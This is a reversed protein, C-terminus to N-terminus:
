SDHRQQLVIRQYGEIAHRSAKTSGKAIVSNLYSFFGGVLSRESCHRLARVTGRVALM